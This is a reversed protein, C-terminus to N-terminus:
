NDLVQNVAQKRKGYKRTNRFQHRSQKRINQQNM